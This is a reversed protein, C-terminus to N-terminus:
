TSDDHRQGLQGRVLDLFCLPASWSPESFAHSLELAALAGYSEAKSTRAPIAWVGLPSM